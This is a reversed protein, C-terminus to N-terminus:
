FLTQSLGVCWDVELVRYLQYWLCRRSTTEINGEQGSEARSFLHDSISGTRDPTGCPLMRPGKSKRIYILSRGGSTFNQTINKNASLVLFTPQIQSELLDLSVRCSCSLCYGTSQCSWTHKLTLVFKLIHHYGPWLSYICQCSCFKWPPVHKIFESHGFESYSMCPSPVVVVYKWLKETLVHLFIAISLVLLLWTSRSNVSEASM